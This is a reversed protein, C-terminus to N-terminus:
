RRTRVEVVGANGGLTGFKFGAQSPSFYEVEVVVEMSITRLDSVTGRPVGDVFLMVQDGSSGATASVARPRVWRPRLRQIAMLLDPELTERITEGTLLSGSSGSSGDAGGGSSACGATVSLTAALAVGWIQGMRGARM